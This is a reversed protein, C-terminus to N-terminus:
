EHLGLQERILAYQPLDHPTVKGTAMRIVTLQNALKLQQAVTLVAKALLKFGEGLTTSPVGPGPATM